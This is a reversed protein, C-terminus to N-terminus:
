AVVYFSRGSHERTVSFVLSGSVRRSPILAGRSGPTPGEVFIAASEPLDGVPIRLTGTGRAVIQMVAGGPIRREAALPAWAIEEFVRDAFETTRGDVTIRRARSGAFAILRGTEDTRFSMAHEGTYTVRHGNVRVDKLRLVASPPPCRDLYRADEDEHRAFYGIWDEEVERFHPALAVAGNPFRCALWATTRSLHETNDNVNKWRGSSGYAGLASLVEFWHRSEYGLSRSQDDRPRYGLFTASGGGPFARHTGVCDNRVRAAVRTGPGPTVPYIHDVLFDTLITQPPVNRLPDEMTVQRGTAIRGEARDPRYAVGFLRQWASLAPTGEATLVPPPGSWVLRGGSKVFRAMLRLLAAPPFPEFVAVLTTFRRGAMVIAGDEVRGRELLKAPTVFNAYGYQTMWSGFRDEVAVLDLPYLMLVDVDRHQADQVLQFPLSAAAGSADVLATRRRALPAPMGWHGAYSYPVENLIGTSAALALGVYNRDSWGSEAHDNGNGTLFDGWAFYDHCAAAAQHVTNSWVFNSTYEYAHRYLNDECTRWFDITPSEAWTAHARAELPRGMRQEAHRKAQVFLDVVGDQLFRYYRSRFLATRRIEQPSAGFVHRVGDKATLDHAFDDQGCAFYVMYRALDRYAEGHREAFKLALGPSVYRMAFEGHEHHSFYHWDQQIHMEDAYLGNLRVGADAYKDILGRLFPLARESFYDMEPTRYQQVVLVRNGPVDVAGTGHVRIRQMRADPAPTDLCEVEAAPLERISEPLVVRYPTGPVPQEEFAFVRVGAEPIAINGKNNTWIRQRWLQVSFAGSQPDRLGKRYHLWLGAEGTAQAYAPGIELPSLLSLELGLGYGQAFRSIAAIRNVYEDTDPTWRRPTTQAPRYQSFFYDFAIALTRQGAAQAAECVQRLSKEERTHSLSLNLVRDPDALAELEQESVLIIMSKGILFGWPGPYAALEGRCVPAYVREASKMTKMTNM